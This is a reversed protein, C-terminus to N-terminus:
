YFRFFSNVVDIGESGTSRLISRESSDDKLSCGPGAPSPLVSSVKLVMYILREYKLVM